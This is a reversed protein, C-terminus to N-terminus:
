LEKYHARRTMKLAGRHIHALLEAAVESGKLCGFTNAEEVSAVV